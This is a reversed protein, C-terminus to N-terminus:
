VRAQQVAISKALLGSAMSPFIVNFHVVVFYKTFSLNSKDPESYTLRTPIAVVLARSTDSKSVRYSCFMKDEGIEGLGARFGV